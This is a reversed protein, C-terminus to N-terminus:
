AKVEAKVEFGRPHVTRTILKAQITEARERMGRIGHSREALEDVTFEGSGQGDDRVTLTVTSSAFELIMAVNRAGSHRLANTFAEQGIRLLHHEIGPRRLPRPEGRVEFTGAVSLGRTLNRTMTRCAEALEINEAHLDYLARKAENLSTALLGRSIQLHESARDADDLRDLAGQLHLMAGTVGTALTDHFELAIRRRESHVAEHRLRVVRLRREHALWALLVIVGACTAIFWPTQYIAPLRRIRIPAAATKWVSGDDSAQVTFRYNGPPLNTYEATRREGAEVWDTDYGDLRYRFRISEARIPTPASYRFEVRIQDAKMTIFPEGVPAPQGDVRTEEVLPPTRLAPLPSRPDLIAVGQGTSMWVRGDSARWTAASVAPVIAGPLGDHVGYLVTHVRAARGEMVDDLANRAVRFLGTPVSFWLFGAGDEFISSITGSILGHVATYIFVHGNHIRHLGKRSGFWSDGDSSDYMCVAADVPHSSSIPVHRFRTGDYVAAGGDGTMAWLRGERDEHLAIVIRGPLGDDIGYNRFRGDKFSTLGDGTGIWLAGDRTRQLSLVSDNAIGDRQTWVRLVGDKLRQLGGGDSAIWLSGDPDPWLANIDSPGKTVPTWHNKEFRNIGGHQTGAFITGDRDQVVSFVETDSLGERATYRLFVGDYLQNVGGLATGVWLTGEADEFLVHAYNSSLGAETGIRTLAGDGTRRWVGNRTGIWLTAHRDVLVAVVDRLDPAPNTVRTGDFFAVGADGGTYVGEKTCHMGLIPGEIGPIQSTVGHENRFLGAETGIWVKDGCSCLTYVNSPVNPDHEVKGDRYWYLGKLWSGFAIRGDGAETVSYVYFVGKTGPVSEFRGNRYRLVGRGGGIWLAGTHDRFLAGINPAELLPTNISNFVTVRVGDFRALGDETGFWLYGDDTQAVATVMNHPLGNEITWARHVYQTLARAPDMASARLPLALAILAFVFYRFCLMNLNTVSDVGPRNCRRNYEGRRM